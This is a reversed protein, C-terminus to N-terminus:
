KDEIPVYVLKDIRASTPMVLSSLAVVKEDRLYIQGGLYNRGARINELTKATTKALGPNSEIWDALGPDVKNAPRLTAKYEYQPPEKCVIVNPDNIVSEAEARPQWLEKPYDVKGKLKLLWAYDNSYFSLTVGESRTAYNSSKVLERYIKKVEYFEDLTITKSRFGSFLSLSKEGSDVQRQLRDLHERLRSLNRAKIYFAMKQHIVLKYKYENYFLKKTEVLKM